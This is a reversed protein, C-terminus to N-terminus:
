MSKMSKAQRKIVEPRLVIYTRKRSPTHIVSCCENLYYALGQLYM